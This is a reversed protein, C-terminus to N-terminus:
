VFHIKRPDVENLILFDYIQKHMQPTGCLLIKNVDSPIVKKLFEANVRDKFTPLLIKSDTPSRSIRVHCRFASEKDGAMDMAM